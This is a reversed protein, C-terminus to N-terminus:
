QSHNYRCLRNVEGDIDNIVDFLRASFFKSLSKPRVKLRKCEYVYSGYVRELRLKDQYKTSFGIVRSVM